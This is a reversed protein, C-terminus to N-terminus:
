IRMCQEGKRAPKKQAAAVTQSLGRQATAASESAQKAQLQRSLLILANSDQFKEHRRVSMDIESFVM